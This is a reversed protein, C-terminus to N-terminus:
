EAPPPSSDVHPTRRGPLGHTSVDVEEGEEPPNKISAVIAVALVVAIVALSLFTPMHYWESILMKIGVFALM